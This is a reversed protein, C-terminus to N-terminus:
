KMTFDRKPNNYVDVCIGRLENVRRFVALPLHKKLYEQDKDTFSLLAQRIKTSSLGNFVSARKLFKYEVNRQINEDFWAKILEPKDSYYMTFSKQGIRSVINYYLYRGWILNDEASDEQSWDPLEYITIKNFYPNDKLCDIVLNYRLSYDFPNREMNSKNSSGIMIAVHDCEKLATEIVHLHANHIPQFRALFVGIKKTTNEM